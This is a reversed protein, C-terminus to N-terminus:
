LWLVCASYCRFRNIVLNLHFVRRMTSINCNQLTCSSAWEVKTNSKWFKFNKTTMNPLGICMVTGFKMLIPWFTASNNCKVTKLIAALWWRQNKFKYKSCSNLFQLALTHCQAFNRWFWCFPKPSQLKTMILIVVM